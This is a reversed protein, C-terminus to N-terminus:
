RRSGKIIKDMWHFLFQHMTEKEEETARRMIYDGGKKTHYQQARPDAEVKSYYLALLKHSAFCYETAIRHESSARIKPNAAALTGEYVKIGELLNDRGGHYANESEKRRERAEVVRGQSKLRRAESELAKAKNFYNAGNFFYARVVRSYVKIRYEQKEEAFLRALRAYRLAAPFDERLTAVDSLSLYTGYEDQNLRNADQLALRANWLAANKLDSRGTRMNELGRELWGLGCSYAARYSSPVKSRADLWLNLRSSYVSNRQVTMFGFVCMLMLVPLYPLFRRAGAAQRARAKELATALVCGFLLFLGVSPLYMRREAMADRLFLVSSTPLLSIFVWFVAFAFVGAIGRRRALLFAAALVAFVVIMCAALEVGITGVLPMAHDINLSAPFALAAIYLAVAKFQTLAYQISIYGEEGTLRSFVILRYAVYAPIILMPGLFPAVCPLAKTRPPEPHLSKRFRFFCFYEILLVLLPIAAALEKTMMALICSLAGPVIFAAARRAPARTRAHFYLLLSVLGFMTCLSSSRGSIYTVGETLMPHVAFFLAGLFAATAACSRRGAGEEEPGSGQLLRELVLRGLFFLLVANCAHILLNAYHYNWTNERGLAYNVAYTYMLVFRRPNFQWLPGPNALNRININGVIQYHDDFQFPTHLSNWYVVHCVALIIIVAIFRRARM